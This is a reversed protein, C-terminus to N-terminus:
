SYQRNTHHVEGPTRPMMPLPILGTLMKQTKKDRAKNLTIGACQDANPQPRSSNLTWEVKRSSIHAHCSKGMAVNWQVIPLGSPAHQTTVGIHRATYSLRLSDEGLM